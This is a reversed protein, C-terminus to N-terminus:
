RGAGATCDARRRRRARLEQVLDAVIELHALDLRRDGVALQVAEVVEQLAAEALEGPQDGVRKKPWAGTAASTSRGISHWRGRRLPGGAM